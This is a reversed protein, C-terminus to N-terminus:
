KKSVLELVSTLQTCVKAQTEVAIAGRDPHVLKITDLIARRLATSDVRPAASRRQLRLRTREKRVRKLDTKAADLAAQMRREEAAHRQSERTHEHTLRQLRQEVGSSAGYATAVAHSM